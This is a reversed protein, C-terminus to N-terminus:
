IIISIFYLAIFVVLGVLFMIFLLDYFFDLTFINM